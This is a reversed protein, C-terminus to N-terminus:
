CLVLGRESSIIGSSTILSAVGREGSVTDRKARLCYSVVIKKQPVKGRCM